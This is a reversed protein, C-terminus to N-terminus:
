LSFVYQALEMEYIYYNGKNLISEEFSKLFKIKITNDRTIWEPNTDFIAQYSIFIISEKEQLLVSKLSNLVEKESRGIVQEPNGWVCYSGYANSSAFFVPRELYASIASGDCAKTAIVKHDLANEQLFAVTNKAQTFPKAFDLAYATLGSVFHLGFIGIILFRRATTLVKDSIFPLLSTAQKKQEFSIWFGVILIIVFIGHYRAASLQTIYLLVFTVLMCNYVFLLSLKNKAFLVLPICLSAIGLVASFPKSLNILLNTNWFHSSRFDPLQAIGKFFGILTKSIREKFPINSSSLLLANNEPPIIQALALIVGSGLIILGLLAKKPILFRHQQWQEIIWILALGGSLVLFMDQTNALFALIIFYRVPRTHRSSYMSCALFLFLLGISYNRSLLTYEFLMYYGFIFLLKFLLTFPGNKLFLYVATSSLVVHLLQMWIPNNTFTNIGYLLINWLIPHGEQRTNHILDLMSNSDRALLWHHAEDLWLEHHLIGIISIVFFLVSWVIYAPKSLSHRRDSIM